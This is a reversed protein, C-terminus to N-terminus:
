PSGFFVDGEGGNRFMDEGSVATGFADDFKGMLLDPDRELQTIGDSVAQASFAELFMEDDHESINGLTSLDKFDGHNSAQDLDYYHNSAAPSSSSEYLDPPTHYQSHVSKAPSGPHSPLHESISAISSRHSRFTSHTSFASPSPASQVALPSLYGSPIPSHGQSYRNEVMSSAQAFDYEDFPKSDLVEDL